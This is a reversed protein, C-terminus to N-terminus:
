SEHEVQVAASFPVRTETAPKWQLVFYGQVGGRRQLNVRVKRRPKGRALRSSHSV